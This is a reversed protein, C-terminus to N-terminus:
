VRLGPLEGLEAPTEAAWFLALAFGAGRAIAGFVVLGGIIILVALAAAATAAAAAPM